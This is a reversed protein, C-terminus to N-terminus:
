GKKSLDIAEEIMTRVQTLSESLHEYQECLKNLCNSCKSEYKLNNSIIQDKLNSLVYKLYHFAIGETTSNFILFLM